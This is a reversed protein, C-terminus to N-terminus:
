SCVRRPGGVGKKVRSRPAPPQPNPPDVVPKPPDVGPKPPDVGLTQHVKYLILKYILIFTQLVNHKM